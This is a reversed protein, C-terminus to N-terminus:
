QLFRVMWGRLFKKLAAPAVSKLAPATLRAPAAANGSAITPAEAVVCTGGIGGFPRGKRGITVKFPQDSGHRM